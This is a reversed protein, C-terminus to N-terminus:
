NCWCGFSSGGTGAPVEEAKSELVTTEEAQRATDAMDAQQKFADNMKSEDETVVVVKSDDYEKQKGNLFDKIPDFITKHKCAAAFDKNFDIIRQPVQNGKVKAFPHEYGYFFPAVKFDAISLSDGGIFKGKLFHKAFSDLNENGAKWLKTMEEEGPDQVFGYCVYLTKAADAYLSSGFRDLAWDITARKKADTPYYQPAYTQALYRLIANSEACCFEGDKLTPIGHFPNMALFGEKMTDVGPMCFVMARPADKAQHGIEAEAALCLAGACNMSIPVGHIEVKQKGGLKLNKL